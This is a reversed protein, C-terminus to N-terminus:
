LRVFVLLRLVSHQGVRRADGLRDRAHEIALRELARAVRALVVPAVRERRRERGRVVIMYFPLGWSLTQRECFVLLHLPEDKVLREEKLEILHLRRCAVERM